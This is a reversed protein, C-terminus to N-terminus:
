GVVSRNIWDLILPNVQEPAEDHPCHGLGELLAVEALPNYSALKKAPKPPIVRDKTGWLILLPIKLVAIMKKASPIAQPRTMGRNLWNFAIVAQREQAPTAILEVLERDVRSKQGYVFSGLVSQIVWPQRVLYFLPTAVLGGIRAELFQKLPRITKPVSRELEAVDPLSITVVGRVSEPHHHALMLGVLAGLSNGVVVMPQGVISQWFDFVQELWLELGYTTAAKESAGFGLLDLTYVPHKAGLDKVNYRWHRGSAGFGHLLLIPLEAPNEIRPDTFHYRIQWGRWLWDRRQLYFSDSVVFFQRYHWAISANELSKEFILSPL